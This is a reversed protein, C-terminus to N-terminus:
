RRFADIRGSSIVVQHNVFTFMRLLLTLRLLLGSQWTYRLRGLLMLGVVNLQVSVLSEELYEVYQIFRCAIMRRM